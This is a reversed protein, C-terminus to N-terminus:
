RLSTTLLRRGLNCLGTQAYDDTEIPGREPYLVAILISGDAYPMNLGNQRSDLQICLKTAAETFEELM